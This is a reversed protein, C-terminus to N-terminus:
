TSFFFAKGNIQLYTPYGHFVDLESVTAPRANLGQLGLVNTTVSFAVDQLYLEGIATSTVAIPNSFSLYAFPASISLSFHYLESDASGHLGFSKSVDDTTATLFSSFIGNDLSTFPINTFTLLLSRTVVDTVSPLLPVM